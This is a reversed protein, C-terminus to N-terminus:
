CSSDTHNAFDNLDILFFAIAATGARRGAVLTGDGHHFAFGLQHPVIVAVAKPVAQGGTGRSGDGKHHPFGCGIIFGGHQCRLCLLFFLQGTATGARGGFGDVPLLLRGDAVCRSGLQALPRYLDFQSGYVRRPKATGVQQHSGVAGGIGIAIEM